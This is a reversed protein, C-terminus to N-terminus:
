CTYKQIFTFINYIYNNIKIRKELNEQWIILHHETHQHTLILNLESSSENFQEVYVTSNRKKGPQGVYFFIQLDYLTM